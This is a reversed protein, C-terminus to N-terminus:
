MCVHCLLSFDLAPAAIHLSVVCIYVMCVYTCVHMCAYMVCYHFISPQHLSTCLKSSVNYRKWVYTCVCVCTTCVYLCVYMVCFCFISHQPLSTSLYWVCTCWVYTNYVYMRIHMCVYVCGYMCAHRLVPFDLAPAAIHLTVVCMYVCIHIVYM